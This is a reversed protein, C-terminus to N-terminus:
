TPPAPPRRWRVRYGWRRRRASELGPHRPSGPSWHHPAEVAAAARSSAAATTRCGSLRWRRTVGMGVAQARRGGMREPLPAPPQVQDVGARRPWRPPVGRDRRRSSGARRALAQPEIADTYNLSFLLNSLADVNDPKIPPACYLEGFTHLDSAMTALCHPKFTAATEHMVLRAAPM